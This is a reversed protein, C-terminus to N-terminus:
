YYNIHCFNFTWKARTNCEESKKYANIISPSLMLQNYVKKGNIFKLLIIKFIKITYYTNKKEKEMKDSFASLSLWKM